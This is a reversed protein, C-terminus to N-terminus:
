VRIECNDAIAGFSCNELIKPIRRGEFVPDVDDAGQPPLRFNGWVEIAGVDGNGGALDAEIGYVAHGVANGHDAGVIFGMGGLDHGEFLAFVCIEESGIGDFSKGVFQNFCFVIWVLSDLEAFVCVVVSVGIETSLFHGIVDGFCDDGPILIAVFLLRHWNM